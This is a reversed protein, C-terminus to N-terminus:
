PHRWCGPSSVQDRPSARVSPDAATNQQARAPLGQTHYKVKKPLKSMQLIPVIANDQICQDSVHLMQILAQSMSLALLANLQQTPLLGSM